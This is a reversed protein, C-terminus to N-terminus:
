GERIRQKEMYHRLIDAGSWPKAEETSFGLKKVYEHVRELTTAEIELFTPIGPVTDLDFHVEGLVYSTRHKKAAKIEKLGLYHLINQMVEFDSVRLEYEQMIKAETKGIKEKLTLEATQESDARKRLRLALNRKELGQHSFDYHHTTLEGEFTKQAGWSELKKTISKVDVELIKVEIELM